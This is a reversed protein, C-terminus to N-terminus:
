NAKEFHQYDIPNSWDGGWSFGLSTFVQYCLDEHTIMHEAGTTRNLYEVANTHACTQNGNEDYWVYPNQQPNIDIACGYAHNSLSQGGTTLRYSFCSTNNVEISATDAESAPDAANPDDRWYNDVLYMSQIPYRNDFLQRFASLYDEALGANVVLEGVQIEGNYNYHILKVYRLDSLAINDNVQYSKGIIRAYIEDGEVIEYTKFFNDLAFPSIANASIIAGAELDDIASSSASEELAEPSLEGGDTTVNLDEQGEETEENLAESQESLAAVESRLSELEQKLITNSASLEEVKKSSEEQKQQTQFCFVTLAVSVVLLVICFLGLSVALRIKKSKKM